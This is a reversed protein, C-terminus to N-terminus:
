PLQTRENLWETIHSLIKDKCPENLIEHYLGSYIFLTKDTSNIESFFERSDREDVLVDNAGHLLIVPDSFKEANEKLWKHGAKVSYLLGVSIKKEVFPDDAYAEVVTKDSCVGDALENDIYTLPDLDDPVIKALGKNDRTWAGSMIIGKVKGPYKTGYGAVAYGGMSHGLLFVPLNPNEKLALDVFVKVDEIIEERNKYYVRWGKSRGHGRHDFRYVKFGQANLYQTVYDYRGQHECLGHVIVIVGKPQEPTDVKGFLEVEDHAKQFFEKTMEYVEM